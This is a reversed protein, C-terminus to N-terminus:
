MKNIIKEQYDDFQKQEEDSIKMQEGEAKNDWPLKWLGAPNDTKDEIGVQINWLLWTATRIIEALSKIRETEGENYGTMADLFDGLRM